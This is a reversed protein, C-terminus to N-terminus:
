HKINPYAVSYFYELLEKIEEREEKMETSIEQLYESLHAIEEQILQSQLEDNKQASSSCWM